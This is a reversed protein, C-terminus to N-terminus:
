AKLQKHSGDCNPMRKSLGCVCDNIGFGDLIRQAYKEIRNIRTNSQKAGSFHMNYARKRGPTLAEFAKKFNNDTNIKHQLEDCYVVNKSATLPVKLGAKEVEIAEFIYAKLIAENNVIDKLNTFRIVRTAQSNEGAKVLLNETDSLLVGKLFSLVCYEKFGGIIIINKGNLTYVPARWKYEETLGCDLIISRLQQLEDQWQEVQNLYTEVQPNM